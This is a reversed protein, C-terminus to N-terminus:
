PCQRRVRVDNTLTWDVDRVLVVALLAFSPALPLVASPYPFFPPSVGSPLPRAKKPSSRKLFFESEKGMQEEGILNGEQDGAINM